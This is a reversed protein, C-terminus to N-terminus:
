LKILIKKLNLLRKLNKQNPLKGILPEVPTKKVIEEQDKPRDKRILADLGRGLASEGKRGSSM